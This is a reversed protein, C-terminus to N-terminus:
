EFTLDETFTLSREILNYIKRKIFQIEKAPKM